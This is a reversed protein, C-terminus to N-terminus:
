PLVVFFERGNRMVQVLISTQGKAKRTVKDFMAPTGVTEGNVQLIIDRTKLGAKEAASGKAVGDLEAGKRGPEGLAGPLGVPVFSEINMGRWNFENPVARAPTVASVPSQMTGTPMKSVAVEIDFRSGDRKVGLRLLEGATMDKILSGLQGPAWVRRGGVKLVIDGAQLGGQAAPSGPVVQSVFVGRDQPHNLREALAASVPMLGAGMFMYNAGPVGFAKVGGQTGGQGEGPQPTAVNMVMSPTPKTFQLAAAQGAPQGKIQHCSNCAMKDRGDNKHNGPTKSNARIVPAPQQTNPQAVPWFAVTQGGTMQHCTTCAMKARGDNQHNGPPTSSAAIVPAPQATTQAAANFSRPAQLPRGLEDLMFKRVQNSPIAFGIGSFAGTPTYIATNIGVVMGDAGILPGGSNGQNIAADTQLLDSHTVGEIALSKRLASVIGRSVTQDLGFPSGIAIVEDAVRVTSSDALRATPLPGPTNIKLLVLDMTEDIKVINAKYRQTGDRTFVTVVAANSGRIIHYNSIIYGDDRVIVGSGTSASMRPSFPNAFAVKSPSNQGEKKAAIAAGVDGVTSINVVSGRMQMAVSAFDRHAVNQAMAQNPVFNRTGARPQAQVNGAGQQVNSPANVADTTRKGQGSGGVGLSSMFTQNHVKPNYYNTVWYTGILILLAAAGVFFLYQRLEIGCNEPLEPKEDVEWDSYESM